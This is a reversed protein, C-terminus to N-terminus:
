NIIGELVSDVESKAVEHGELHIVVDVAEANTKRIASALRRDAGADSGDQANSFIM